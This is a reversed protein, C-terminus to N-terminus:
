MPDLQKTKAGNFTAYFMLRIQELEPTRSNQLELVSQPTGRQELEPDREHYLDKAKGAKTGRVVVACGFTNGPSPTFWNTM